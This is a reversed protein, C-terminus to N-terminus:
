WAGDDLELTGETEMRKAYAVLSQYRKRQETALATVDIQKLLELARLPRELEILCIQALKLRVRDASATFQELYEAMIPASERWMRRKHLAVILATLENRTLELPQGSERLKRRLKLAADPKGRRVFQRFQARAAERQFDTAEQPSPGLDADLLDLQGETGRFVALVDYGECDVLRLRLMAFGVAVGILAGSLHLLASEGTIGLIVFSLEKAIMLAGFVLISIDVEIVRFLFLLVCTVDNRPAWVWAVGLLGFIAASAGLSGQATTTLPLMLAQELASQIAGIGVYLLLFRWWGVKGEVLVGFPWLFFLNGILHIPNLHVFNSTVWQIPHLAGDYRLMWEEETAIWGSYQGVLVITNAAMLLVTAYPWHYVPADTRYPFFM